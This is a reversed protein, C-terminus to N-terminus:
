TNMHLFIIAEIKYRIMSLILCRDVFYLPGIENRLVRCSRKLAKMYRGNKCSLGFVPLSKKFEASMEYNRVLPFIPGFEVVVACVALSFVMLILAVPAANNSLKIGIAVMIRGITKSASKMLPIFTRGMISNFLNNLITLARYRAITGFPNEVAQERLQNLIHSLTVCYTYGLVIGFILYNCSEWLVYTEFAYVVLACRNLIHFASGDTFLLLESMLGVIGMKACIIFGQL